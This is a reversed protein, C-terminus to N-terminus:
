EARANWPEVDHRWCYWLEFADTLGSGGESSGSQPVVRVGAQNGQVRRLRAGQRLTLQGSGIPHFLLRHAPHHGAELAGPIHGPLAIVDVPAPQHDVSRVASRLDEGADLGVLDGILKHSPPHRDAVSERRAPAFRQTLM